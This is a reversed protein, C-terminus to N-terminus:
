SWGRPEAVPQPTPALPGLSLGPVESQAQTEQMPTWQLVGPGVSGMFNQTKEVRPEPELLTVHPLESISLRRKQGM